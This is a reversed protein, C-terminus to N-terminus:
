RPASTEEKSRVKIFHIASSVKGASECILILQGKLDVSLHKNRKHMLEALVYLCVCVFYILVGSSDLYYSNTQMYLFSVVTWFSISISIKTFHM